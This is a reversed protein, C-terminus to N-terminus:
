SRCLQLLHQYDGKDAAKLANLYADRDPDASALPDSAGWTFPERRFHKELILDAVLRSLRGNGNQFPHTKVIRHHVRVAFEDASMREDNLWYEVADAYLQALHPRIDPVTSAFVNELEVTRIKGAWEWVDNLMRFHLAQLYEIGLM